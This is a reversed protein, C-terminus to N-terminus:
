GGMQRAALVEARVFRPQDDPSSGVAELVDQDVLVRVQEVPVELLEAAEEIGIEDQERPASM